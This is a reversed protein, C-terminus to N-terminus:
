TWSRKTSRSGTSLLSRRRYLTRSTQTSLLGSTGLEILTSPL